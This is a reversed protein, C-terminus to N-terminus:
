TKNWRAKVVNLMKEQNKSLPADQQQIYQKIIELPAGGCSVVCYSPSWFHDGWLKDKIDEWFENRLLRSSVGKFMRVIHAISLKTPYEILLHIHDNEGNFEILNCDLEKCLDKIIDELRDLMEKTFVKKRYKPTFVLHAFIKSIVHKGTRWDHSEQM